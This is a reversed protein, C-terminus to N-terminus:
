VEETDAHSQDNVGEDWTGLAWSKNEDYAYAREIAQDESTAQVEYYQSHTEAMLVRYTKM